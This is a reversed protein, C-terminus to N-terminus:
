NTQTSLFYGLESRLEVGVEGCLTKEKFLVSTQEFFHGSFPSFGVSIQGQCLKVLTSVFFAM